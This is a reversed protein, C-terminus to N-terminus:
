ADRKYHLANLLLFGEYKAFVEIPSWNNTYVTSLYWRGDDTKYVRGVERTTETDTYMVLSPFNEAIRLPSQYTM